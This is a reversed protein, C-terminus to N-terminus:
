GGFQIEYNKLGDKQAIDVAFAVAGQGVTHPVPKGNVTVSVSALSLGGPLAVLVKGGSRGVIRGLIRNKEMTASVGVDGGACGM